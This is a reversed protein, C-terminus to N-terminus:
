RQFYFMMISFDTLNVMGDGNIDAVKHNTQWHFLLISFDVLNTINDCNLDGRSINCSPAPNSSDPTDVRFTVTPSTISQSGIGDQVNTYIQYQGPSLSGTESASLTFSWTGNAASNVSYSRLPAELFINILSSPKATGNVTITEGSAIESKNIEISPSLIIGSVNTTTSGLLYLTLTNASTSRGVSDSSFMVYTHSGPDLGTLPFTFDGLGSAVTTGLVSGNETLTVFANPATYGTINLSSLPTAVTASVNVSGGTTIPFTTAQNRVLTGEANESIKIIVQQSEGPPPNSATVGRVNLGAGPLLSFNTARVINGSQSFVPSGFHGDLSNIPQINGYNPLEIILWDTPRIQQSDLPLVFYIDHGISPEGPANTTVYDRVLDLGNAAAHAPQKPASLWLASSFVAFVLVTCHAIYRQAGGKLYM